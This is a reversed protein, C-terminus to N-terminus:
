ESEKGGASNLSEAIQNRISEAQEETEKYLEYVHDENEVVSELEKTFVTEKIKSPQIKNMLLWHAILHAGSEFKIIFGSEILSSLDKKTAETEWMLRKVSNTFGYDDAYLIMYMYLLRANVPLDSFKDNDIVSKSIMRREAM